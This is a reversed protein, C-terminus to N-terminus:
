SEDHPFEECHQGDIVGIVIVVFHALLLEAVDVLVAFAAGFTVGICQLFGVGGEVVLLTKEAVVVVVVSVAVVVVVTATAVSVTAAAVPVSTGSCSSTAVAFSTAASRKCLSLGGRGGDGASVRNKVLVNKAKMAVATSM